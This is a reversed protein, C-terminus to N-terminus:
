TFGLLSSSLELLDWCLGLGKREAASVAATVVDRKREDRGLAAKAEVGAEVVCFYSPKASYALSFL